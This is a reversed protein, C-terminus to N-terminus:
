EFKYEYEDGYQELYEHKSYLSMDVENDMIAIEAIYWANRIKFPIDTSNSDLVSDCIEKVAKKTVKNLGADYTSLIMGQQEIHAKFIDKNTM